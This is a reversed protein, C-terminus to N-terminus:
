KNLKKHLSEWFDKKSYLKIKGSKIDEWRKDLATILQQDEKVPSNNESLSSWLKKALLRKEKDPLALLQETSYSMIKLKFNLM